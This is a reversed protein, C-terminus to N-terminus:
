APDLRELTWDEENGRETRSREPLGLLEGMPELCRDWHHHEEVYRRGASGLCGRLRDNRILRTVGKIWAAASAARLCHKGPRVRLAALAPPSAIVAKGMAMAELVKNQLGRAIRLPAIVAAARAMWPRVDAVPGVVEIGPHCALERVAAAPRRGVLWLKSGPIRRHVSPWVTKVFWCVADVNPRYDLAGVFVCAPEVTAQRPQFYHLDVGNVVARVHGSSCFRRYIAAEAESVLTVARAWAPMPQELARLRRGETRYLWSRWGGEASAYDLWKQSDVDVLDVIAPVGQLEPLRLYPSVASSSAISANFTTTHTWDLITAALAPAKFVGESVTRGRLLSVMARMWRVPGLPVVALRHCYRRLVTLTEAPVPEDALCALHVDAQHSLYRLLHFARIRDGKDLPYPVRHVVYLINRRPLELAPLHLDVDGLAKQLQTHELM